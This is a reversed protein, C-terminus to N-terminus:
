LLAEGLENELANKLEDKCKQQHDKEFAAMQQPTLRTFPWTPYGQM